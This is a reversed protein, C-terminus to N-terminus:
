DDTSVPKVFAALMMRFMWLPVVAYAENVGKMRRKQIVAYFTAQANAAEVKAENMATSLAMRKEAKCEFVWDVLPGPTLDGEDRAGRQRRREVGPFVAALYDAVEKEWKRGAAKAAQQPTTM